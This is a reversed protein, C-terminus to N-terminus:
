GEKGLSDCTTLDIAGQCRGHYYNRSAKLLGQPSSRRALFLEPSQYLSMLALLVCGLSFRPCLFPPCPLPGPALPLSGPPCLFGSPQSPSLWEAKLIERVRPLSIVVSLMNIAALHSLLGKEEGSQVPGPHCRLRIQTRQVGQYKACLDRRKRELRKFYLLQRRRESAHTPSLSCLFIDNGMFALFPTTVLSTSFHCKCKPSLGAWEM